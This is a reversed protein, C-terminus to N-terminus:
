EGRVARGGPFKRFRRSLGVMFSPSRRVSRHNADAHLGEPPIAVTPAVFEWGRCIPFKTPETNVRHGETASFPYPVVRQSAVNPPPMSRAALRQSRLGRLSGFGGDPRFPLEPSARSQHSCDPLTLGPVSSRFFLVHLQIQGSRNSFHALIPANSSPEFNM